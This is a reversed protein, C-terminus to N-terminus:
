TCSGLDTIPLFRFCFALFFVLRQVWLNGERGLLANMGAVNYLMSYEVNSDMSVFAIEFQRELM